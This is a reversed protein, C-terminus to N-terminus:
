FKNKKTCFGFDIGGEGGWVITEYEGLFIIAVWGGWKYIEDAGTGWKHIKHGEGRGGQM